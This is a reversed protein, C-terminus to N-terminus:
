QGLKHKCKRALVKQLKQVTSLVSQDMNFIWGADLNSEHFIKDLVSFFETINEKCFGRASAVSTAERQHLSIESHRAIFGYHWKDGAMKKERSFRHTLNDRQWKM